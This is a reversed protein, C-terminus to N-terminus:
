QDYCMWLELGTESFALSQTTCSIEGDCQTSSIVVLCPVTHRWSPILSNASHTEFPEGRSWGYGNLNQEVPIKGRENGERWQLVLPFWGKGTSLGLWLSIQLVDFHKEKSFSFYIPHFIPGFHLHGAAIIFMLWSGWSCPVFPHFSNPGSLFKSVSNTSVNWLYATQTQIWIYIVNHHSPQLPSWSFFRCGWTKVSSCSVSGGFGSSSHASPVLGLTECASDNM